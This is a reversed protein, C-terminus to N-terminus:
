LGFHSTIRKMANRELLSIETDAKYRIDYRHTLGGSDRYDVAVHLARVGKENVYGYVSLGVGRLAHRLRKALETAEQEPVRVVPRVPEENM